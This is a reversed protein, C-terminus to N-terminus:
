PSLLFATRVSEGIRRHSLLALSQEYVASVIDVRDVMEKKENHSSRADCSLKFVSM